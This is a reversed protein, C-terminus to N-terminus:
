VIKNHEIAIAINDRIGIPLYYSLYAACYAHRLLAVKSSYYCKHHKYVYLIKNRFTKDHEYIAAYKAREYIINVLENSDEM